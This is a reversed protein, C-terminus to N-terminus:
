REEVGAEDGPAATALAVPARPPVQLEVAGAAGHLRTGYRELFYSITEVRIKIAGAPRNEDIEKFSFHPTAAAALIREVVTNVAADHGCKFSSLELAVLNPHRAVLKAAWLKRNTNESFSNKWVDDVRLAQAQPLGFWREVFAADDFPLAEISLVPYGRKQLEEAIGHNVGPDAHYPRALVVIGIHGSQELEALVEGGRRRRAAGHADLHRYAAAVAAANERKSLGLLPGCSAFLEREVLEPQALSLLPAVFRVGAAAFLDREATFAARVTLPTSATTPCSHSHRTGQLWTPLEDIMPFFIADLRRGPHVRALLHHVHSAALKSPFCPDIAGRTAGARFLKESTVPSFVVNDPRVGLSEFYARFFPALTYMAMARPIGIRLRDRGSALPEVGSARFVLRAQEDVLNPTRAKAERQAAQVARMQEEGAAMGTECPAVILRRTQRVSRLPPGDSDSSGDRTEDAGTDLDIVTRLCRNNCFTCRTSEDRQVTFRLRELADLGIFRTRQGDGVLSLAELACGIAGGEGAHPHVRVDPEVGSGRFQEVIYDVQAKVAALNYQTGGQLVFRRGLQALNPMKAVYLWINKPLVRCLGGLIEERSFGLRQFDVIDSQLFVACGYNFEPLLRASFAADAYQEVPLGLALATGQLFYGNGASCQTNLRFDRVAGDRLFILKIDQGGVDCIVDVDRGFCAVASKAHAVTEVLAVDAGLARALIDKAYGTTACGIVELRAGQGEVAARLEAALQKVDHIPNGCSLRYAKALVEGCRDLLVAKTSTSGGDIGLVAEVRQGRQFRAPAFPPRRYAGYFAALEDADAVLPPGARDSRARALQAARLRGLEAPACLPSREEEDLGALAAGVAAFEAAAAPVVVGEALPVEPAGTVGREAWLRVFASRWAEILGPLFAHPGGVLLVTPLPTVGRTLVSLNQQVIADFLSALLEDEPIGQKQLGILDTEAFVGCKA